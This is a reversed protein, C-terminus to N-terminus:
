KKHSADVMDADIEGLSPEALSDGEGNVPNQAQLTKQQNIPNAQSKKVEEALYNWLRRLIGETAQEGLVVSREPYNPDEKPLNDVERILSQLRPLYELTWLNPNTKINEITRDRDQKLSDSIGSAKSIQELAESWVLSLPISDHRDLFEDYSQYLYCDSEKRLIGFALCAYFVDQMEQMRGAEPPIIESFIQQYDNHIRARNQKCERDYHERMKEIGQILRLPFAGYENVITIETDSQVAKLVSKEIGVKETLLEEFQRSNRDDNQRFGIIESKNGSDEYFYGDKTLPLLPKAEALIQQIRQEASTFTYKQLFREVVGELAVVKIAAFRKDITTIIGKEMLNENIQSSVLYYITSENATVDRDTIEILLYVLSKEFSFEESLIQESLVILTSDEDKKPLFEQYCLEVDNPM